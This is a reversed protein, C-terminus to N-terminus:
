NSSDEINETFLPKIPTTRFNTSGNPLQVTCTENTIAILKYPGEWRQSKNNDRWVLVESNLPLDLVQETRPGNRKRLAETIQRSARLKNVEHMAKKIALAHTAISPSTPDLQTMRPYCGFVLLTPVLGDPGATDNIAKVAMQLALYRPINPLDESIVEYARRLSAHYREVIGM